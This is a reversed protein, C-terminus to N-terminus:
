RLQYGNITFGYQPGSDSGILGTNGGNSGSIVMTFSSITKIEGLNTKGQYDPTYIYPFQTGSVDNIYFYGPKPATAPGNGTIWSVKLAQACMPTALAFRWAITTWGSSIEYYGGALNTASGGWATFPSGNISYTISSGPIPGTATTCSLPSDSGTLYAIIVRGPGGSGGTSNAGAGGGSGTSGTASGGTGSHNGDGAGGGGGPSSGARSAGGGGGAFFQSTPSFFPTGTLWSIHATPLAAGGVGPGSPIGANGSGGAGGGGGGGYGPGGGNNAGQTGLGFTRSDAPLAPNNTQNLPSIENGYIGGPSGGQTVVPSPTYNLGRGGGQAVWNPGFTSDGGNTGHSGTGGGGGGVDITYSGASLPIPAIIVGGAGGGASGGDGPNNNGGAGGGAILLINALGAGGTVVFPNPGPTTFDHYTYSGITTKTGGTASIPGGGAVGGVPAVYRKRGFGFSFGGGGGSRSLIPSM